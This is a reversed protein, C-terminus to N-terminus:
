LTMIPGELVKKYLAKRTHTKRSSITTGSSFFGGAITREMGPLNGKVAVHCTVLREMKVSEPMNKVKEKM